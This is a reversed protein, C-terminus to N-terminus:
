LKTWKQTFRQDGIRVILTYMGPAYSGINLSYSNAGINLQKTAMDSIRGLEDVVYMTAIGPVSTNITANLYSQAPNPFVSVSVQSAVSRIGATSHITATDTIGIGLNYYGGSPTSQLKVPRVMYYKLGKTAFSDHYTTTTVITANLKQYYGYESDARYVYYGIVGPDPSAMWNLIAGSHYPTTITLASPQKIYDTRLSLDGMLAVHVGGAAYNSPQYTLLGNNQTLRASYGIHEGLAMHHVFWNPRGAWCSTLAPPNSCLPARLFDNQTNWDGFYSGFLM